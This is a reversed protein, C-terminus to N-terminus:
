TSPQPLARRDPPQTRQIAARRLPTIQVSINGLGQVRFGLDQALDHDQNPNLPIADSKKVSIIGLVELRLQLGEVM